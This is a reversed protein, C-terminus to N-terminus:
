NEKIYNICRICIHITTKAPPKFVIGDMSPRCIGKLIDITCTDNCIDCKYTTEKM